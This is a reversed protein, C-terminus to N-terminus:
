GCPHGEFPCGVGCSVGGSILDLHRDQLEGTAARIEDSTFEFGAERAFQQQEAGSKCGGLRKRFEEEKEVKTLFDRASQMSM